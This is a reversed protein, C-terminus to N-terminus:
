LKNKKKSLPFIPMSFGISFNNINQFKRNYIPIHRDFHLKYNGIGLYIFPVWQLSSDHFDTYYVFETGLGFLLFSIQGGVKPGIFFANNNFIFENSVYYSSTFIKHHSTIKSWGLEIAHNTIWNKNGPAIAYGAILQHQITKSGEPYFLLQLGNLDKKNIAIGEIKSYKGTNYGKEISFKQYHASIYVSDDTFDLLKDFEFHIESQEDFPATEISFYNNYRIYPLTDIFITSHLQINNKLKFSLRKGEIEYTFFDEKFDPNVDYYLHKESLSDIPIYVPPPNYITTSHVFTAFISLLGLILVTKKM